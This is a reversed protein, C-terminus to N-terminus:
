IIESNEDHIVKYIWSFRFCGKSHHKFVFDWWELKSKKDACSVPPYQSLQNQNEIDGIMKDCRAQGKIEGFIPKSNCINIAVIPPM